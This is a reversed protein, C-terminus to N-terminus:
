APKHKVARREFFLFVAIFICAAAPFLIFWRFAADIGFYKYLYGCLMNGTVYGLGNVMVTKCAHATSACAPPVSLALCETIAPWIVAFSMGGIFQGLILFVISDSALVVGYRIIQIIFSILILAPLSIKKILMGTIKYALFEGAMSAAVIWATASTSFGHQQMRIPLFQTFVSEAAGWFFLCAMSFYFMRITFLTKLQLSKKGGPRVNERDTVAPINRHNVMVFFSLVMFAPVIVQVGFRQILYGSVIVGLGYGLPGTNRYRSYESSAGTKKLSTVLLEDIVTSFPGLGVAFLVVSLILVPFSGRGITGIGAAGAISVASLIYLLKRVYGLRDILYSVLLASVVTFGFYVSGAYGIRLGDLGISEYYLGLFPNIMACASWFIFYFRGYVSPTAPQRSRYDM